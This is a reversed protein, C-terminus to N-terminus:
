HCCNTFEEPPHDICLVGQGCSGSCYFCYAVGSPKCPGGPCCGSCPHCVSEGTCLGPKTHRKDQAKITRAQRQSASAAPSTLVDGLGGIVLVGVSGLGAKRLFSRRDDAGPGSKTDRKRKM